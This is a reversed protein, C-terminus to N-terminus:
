GRETAGTRLLPRVVDIPVVDSGRGAGAAVIGLVEGQANVLPAGVQDPGLLLDSRLPALAVVRGPRPLASLLVGVRATADGGARGTVVMVLDGARGSEAQRTPLGPMGGVDVTLIALRGEPDRRLARAPAARGDALVVRVLAGDRAVDATTVVTGGGGVLVGLREVPPSGRRGGTGRVTVVSAAVAQAVRRLGDSVHVGVPPGALGPTYSRSRTGAFAAVAALSVVLCTGVLGPRARTLRRSLIRM